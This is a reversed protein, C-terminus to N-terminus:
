GLILSKVLCNKSKMNLLNDDQYVIIRCKLLSTLCMAIKQLRADDVQGCYYFEVEELSNQIIKYSLNTKLERLVIQLAASVRHGSVMKNEIMLADVRRGWFEKFYKGYIGCSCMGEELIGEDGNCYKIFPHCYNFFDTSQLEDSEIFCLEDYVHLRYYPCSFFGLGGDWCRLKNIVLPFMERAMELVNDTATERTLIVPCKFSSKIQYLLQIETPSMIIYKFDQIASVIWDWDAGAGYDLIYAQNNGAAMYGTDINISPIAMDHYRFVLVNGTNTLGHSKEIRWIHHNEILDYQPRPYAYQKSHGSTTGSSTMGMFNACPKFSPIDKIKKAENYAINHYNCIQNLHSKQYSDLAEKSQFVLSDKKRHWYNKCSFLKSVLHYM